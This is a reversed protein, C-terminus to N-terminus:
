KIFDLITNVYKETEEKFPLHASNEFLVIKYNNYKSFLKYASKWYIVQDHKGLILLTQLKNEKLARKLHKMNKLTMMEKRLHIFNERHKKQYETEDAIKKDDIGSFHEDINWIILKQMNYTQENNEPVFKLVNLHKFSFSPNMPTVMVLKEILDPIMTAVMLVIGGGMSHGILDIKKFQMFKIWNAVHQALNYPVLQHKKDKLPAIGHGPLQIAYYNFDKEIYKIFVDHYESTTAFGHVFVINKANPKNSLKQFYVFDKTKILEM